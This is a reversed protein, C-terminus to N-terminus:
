NLRAPVNLKHQDCYETIPVGEVLEMAIWPRGDRAVGADLLRAINPHTLKLLTRQELAFREQLEASDSELKLIKLAVIQEIGAVVRKARWVEGMGGQGLLGLLEFQPISSRAQVAGTIAASLSRTDFPTFENAEAAASELRDIALLETLEAALAPDTLSLEHLKQAQADPALEILSEFWEIKSM